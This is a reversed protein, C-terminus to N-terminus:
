KGEANTIFDVDNIPKNFAVFVNKYYNEASEVPEDDAHDPEEIINERVWAEAMAISAPGNDGMVMGNNDADYESDFHNQVLDTVEDYTKPNADKWSQPDVIGTDKLAKIFGTLSTFFWVKADHNVTDSAGIYFSKGAAENVQGSMM